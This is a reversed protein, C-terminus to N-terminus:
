TVKSPFIGLVGSLELTREYVRQELDANLSRIEQEANLRLDVEKELKDIISLQQKAHNELLERKQQHFSVQEFLEKPSLQLQAIFRSFYSALLAQEEDSFINVQAFARYASATGIVGSLANLASNKLISLEAINIKNKNIVDTKSLCQQLKIEAMKRPMYQYFLKRILAIKPSLDIIDPETQGLLKGLSINQTDVFQHAIKQEEDSMTSWLSVGVYLLTNILLSWVLSNTLPSVQAIAFFHEPNFWYFFGTKQDLIPWDLWGSRIVSPLLSSYFWLSAGALLGVFAGLLNGSKWILGGILAPAFQACAIFSITGIKIILESDGIVRYYFLSLFLVAFVMFWRVQLIYRKLRSLLTTHMIVPIMIHNTLMTSLTMASIMIMGTAAAFGGLFVLISISAHNASMPLSLLWLDASDIPAGQLMGALAIPLTFLNILLLYLPFLWKAKDIFATNSCEVVGVHFQRPLTLIGIGGLLMFSLWNQASLPQINQQLELSAPQTFLTLVGPNLLYCIWLAAIILAVLKFLSEFALAVMMGPHKETPDLHRVGFLITFFSMMLVILIDFNELLLNSSTPTEVLLQFSTIISKLQITLYPVIGLLCLLSILAALAQSRNYRASIFDAISTSHFENKLVVMKKLLPSLFVFTLTTGLHISVPFIGQSASLGISGFFTWSTCFVALSLAYTHASNRVKHAIIGSSKSWQAIIFLVIIYLILLIFLQDFIIM